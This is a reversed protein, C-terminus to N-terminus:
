VICGMKKVSTRIVNMEKKLGVIEQLIDELYKHESLSIDLARKSITSGFAGFLGSAAFGAAPILAAAAGGTLIAAAGFIATSIWGGTAM